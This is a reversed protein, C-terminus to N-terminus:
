MITCCSEEDLYFSETFKDPESGDRIRTIPLASPRNYEKLYKMAYSMGLGKERASAGKGVWVWVMFGDDLVFTDDGDLYRRKVKNNMRGARDKRTFKLEGSNDTLRFLVKRFEKIKTDDGGSEETEVNYTRVKFGLFRRDGPIADWFESVEEDGQGEDLTVAKAKGGRDSIIGNVVAKAKLKEHSNAEKGNWQFIKEGLDLLFVDGSNMYDRRLKIQKLILAGKIGKVQLLTPEHVEDEVHNFGSEIGGDLYRIGREEFLKLFAKSENEQVERHQIPMDNLKHDLEVTKYAATGYEDQSSEAGIWFYIDYALADGDPRKKYSHLVIYSDGTHFQGYQKRPWKVVKFKEIRWIKLEPKKGVHDWAKEGDASAAKIKKELDSGFLAM